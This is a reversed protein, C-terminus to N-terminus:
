AEPRETLEDIVQEVRHVAEPDVDPRLRGVQDKLLEISDAAKGCRRCAELHRAVTVAAKEDDLEGDLYRQLLRGVRMCEIRDRIM